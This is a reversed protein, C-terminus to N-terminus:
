RGGLARLLGALWGGRAAAVRPQPPNQAQPKEALVFIRDSFEGIPQVLLPNMGAQRIEAIMQDNTCFHKNRKKAATRAENRAGKYTECTKFQALVYRRSATALSQLLRIRQEGEFYYVFRVSAVLDPVEPLAAQLHFADGQAVTGELGLAKHLKGAAEAMPGSFDRGHVKFGRRKWYHFIRGPGCPVDCITKVGETLALCADLARHESWQKLRGLPGYSVRLRTYGEPDLFVPYSPDAQQTTPTTSVRSNYDGESNLAM